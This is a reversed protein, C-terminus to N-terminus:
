GGRSGGGGSPRGGRAPGVREGVSPHATKRRFRGPRADGLPDEFRQEVAPDDPLLRPVPDRDEGAALRHVEIGQQGFRSALAARPLSSLEGLTTIGLWRLTAVLDSDGLAGVELSALFGTDDGVVMVGGDGVAAAACRAAFPGGAVGIRGGHTGVASHVREVVEAESGYYRVAGQLPVFVLGPEAVEVRPIVEEVASVVMEFGIAEVEPLRDLVVGTPCLAEAQRRLMGAEVGAAAAHTNCAVVRQIASEVVLCPRDLPADPRRLPWDPFWM